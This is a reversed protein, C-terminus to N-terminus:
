PATSGKKRRATRLSMRAKFFHRVYFLTPADLRGQRKRNASTPRSKRAVVKIEVVKRYKLDKCVTKKKLPCAVRMVDILFNAPALLGTVCTKATCVPKLTYMNIPM